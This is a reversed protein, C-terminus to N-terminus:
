SFEQCQFSLSHRVYVCLWLHLCTRTVGTRGTLIDVWAYPTGYSLRCRNVWNVPSTECLRRAGGPSCYGRIPPPRSTTGGQTYTYISEMSKKWITPFWQLVSLEHKDTEDILSQATKRNAQIDLQRATNLGTQRQRVWLEAWLTARVCHEVRWCHQHKRIRILVWCILKQDPDRHCHMLTM